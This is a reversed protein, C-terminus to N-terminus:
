APREPRFLWADFLPDLDKGSLREALDIFQETTVNGYRHESTWARLLTFFTEDGIAKRLAHLTMGGRTYVSQNFLDDPKARGPPYAWM